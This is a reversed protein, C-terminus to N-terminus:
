FMWKKPSSRITSPRVRTPQEPSVRTKSQEASNRKKMISSVTPSFYDNSRQSTAGQSYVKRGPNFSRQRESPTRRAAPNNHVPGWRNYNVCSQSRGVYQCRGEKPSPYNRSEATEASYMTTEGESSYYDHIHPIRIPSSCSQVESQVGDVSGTSAIDADAVLDSPGRANYREERHPQGPPTRKANSNPSIKKAFQPSDSSKVTRPPFNIDLLQIQTTEKNRLPVSTLKPSEYIEPTPIGQIHNPAPADTAVNRDEPTHAIATSSPGPQERLKNLDDKLGGELLQIPNPYIHTPHDKKRSSPSSSSTSSSKVNPSTALKMPDCVMFAFIEFGALWAWVLCWKGEGVLLRENERCGSNPFVLHCDKPSDSCGKHPLYSNFDNSLKFRDEAAKKIEQIEVM